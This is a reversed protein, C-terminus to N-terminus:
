QKTLFGSPTATHDFQYNYTYIGFPLIPVTKTFAVRAQVLNNLQKVEVFADSPLNNNQLSGNIKQKVIDVPSMKGPLALGQVVATQMDQKLSECDYAVPIYQFGAHGILVLVALVILFKAGAGGRESNRSDVEKKM